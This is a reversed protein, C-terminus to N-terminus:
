RAVVGKVRPKGKGKICSGAHEVYTGAPVLSSLSPAKVTLIRGRVTYAGGWRASVRAARPLRVRVQRGDLAVTGRNRVRVSYCHTGRWTPAAVLPARANSKSPSEVLRSLSSSEVGPSASRIGVSVAARRRHSLLSLASRM